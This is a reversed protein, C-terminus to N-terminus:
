HLLSQPGLATAPSAAFMDLMQRFGLVQRRMLEFDTLTTTIEPLHGSMLYTPMTIFQVLPLGRYHQGEGLPVSGAVISGPFVKAFEISQDVLVPNSSV